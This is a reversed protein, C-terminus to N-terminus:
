CHKRFPYNSLKNWAFPTLFFIPQRTSNPKSSAHNAFEDAHKTLFILKARGDIQIFHYNFIYLAHNCFFSVFLLVWIGYLHVHKRCNIENANNEHTANDPTHTDKNTPLFRQLSLEWCIAVNGNHTIHTHISQTHKHAIFKKRKGNLHIFRKWITIKYPYHYYHDTTQNAFAM